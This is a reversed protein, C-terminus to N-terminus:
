VAVLAPKLGVFTALCNIIGEPLLSLDESLGRPRGILKVHGFGPLQLHLEVDITSPSWAAVMPAFLAYAGAGTTGDILVPVTVTRQAAWDPSGYAGAAQQLDVDASKPTPVGLGAVGPPAIWRGTMGILVSGLEVQYDGTILDGAPM